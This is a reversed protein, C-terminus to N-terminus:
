QLPPKKQLAIGLAKKAAVFGSDQAVAMQLRTRAMDAYGSALLMLGYNYNITPDNPSAAAIQQMLALAEIGYGAHFLAQAKGSRATSNDPELTLVHDYLRVAIMYARANELVRAYALHAPVYDPMASLANEFFPRAQAPRNEAVLLQALVLNARGWDPRSAVALALQKLACSRDQMDLCFMGANMHATANQPDLELAKMALERAQYVEGQKQYCLSLNNIAEVFDPQIKLAMQFHAMADHLDGQSALYTGLDNHAQFSNPNSKLTHEWLTKSDKFVHSQNWTLLGLAGTIFFVLVFACAKQKQAFVSICAAALAFLGICAMYQFHDAVYSYRFPYVRFFGLAPFLTIVFFLIGSVPGRSIKERLSWSLFLLGALALPYSLLGWHRADLNWRPYNFVLDLPWILKAAYFWPARGALLIKQAPSLLWEQGSAGVHHVELWVTHLGLILGVVLFPLLSAAEHLTVRGRRYWLVVALAAPLTVAVTKSLLACLFLCFGAGYWCATRAKTQVPFHYKLLCLFAALYFVASLINKREAVWAVTEVQVPHVAFLLAALWAGPLQILFLIRWLLLAALIHLSLNVAHFGMPAFGWVKHELWYLSHVLPYYQPTSEPDFWIRAFGGKMTLTPNATVYYDDDWVFGCGLVPWFACLTIIVLAALLIRRQWTQSM